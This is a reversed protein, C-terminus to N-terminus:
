HKLDLNALSRELLSRSDEGTYDSDSPEHANRYANELHILSRIAYFANSIAEVISYMGASKGTDDGHLDLIERLMRWINVILVEAVPYVMHSGMELLVMLKEEIGLLGSGFSGILSNALDRVLAILHHIEDKIFNHNQNASTSRPSSGIDRSRSNSRVSNTREDELRQRWMDVMSAVTGVEMNFNNLVGEDLSNLPRSSIISTLRSFLGFVGSAQAAVSSPFSNRPNSTPEPRIGPHRLHPTINSLKEDDYKMEEASQPTLQAIGFRLSPHGTGSSTRTNSTFNPTSNIRPPIRGRYQQEQESVDVTPV